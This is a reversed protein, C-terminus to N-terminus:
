FNFGLDKAIRRRLAEFHAYPTTDGSGPAAPRLFDISAITGDVSSVSGTGGQTGIIQGEAISDGAEFNAPQALHGYLVDVQEGTAPDTSEIVIFNGYGSGNPNLQVGIEKVIGPLVAPFKKDEFFVDIGPQNTDFTVQGRAQDQFRSIPIGETTQQLSYRVPAQSVRGELIALGRETRPNSRNVNFLAKTAPPANELITQWSNDKLEITDVGLAPAVHNVWDLPSMQMLDAHTRVEIPVNGTAEMEQIYQRYQPQNLYPVIIKPDRQDPTLVSYKQIGRRNFIASQQARERAENIEDAIVFRGDVVTNPQSVAVEIQQLISSTALDKAVQPTKGESILRSFEQNRKRTWYEAYNLVSDNTRGDVSTRIGPVQQLRAKIQRDLAVTDPANKFEDLTAAQPLWRALLKEPLGLSLVYEQTLNGSVRLETLIKNMEDTAKSWRSEAKFKEFAPTTAGAGLQSLVEEVADTEQQTIVGDAAYQEMLLAAETQVGLKYNQDAIQYDQLQQRQLIRIHDKLSNAETVFQDQFEPRGEFGELPMKLFSEIDEITGNSKLFEVTALRSRRSRLNTINQNLGVVGQRDFLNKISRQTEDALEQERETSRQQQFQSLIGRAQNAVSPNYHAALAESTYNKGSYNSVLQFDKAAWDKYADILQQGSLDPNEQLLRNKTELWRISHTAAQNKLVYVNNAYERSGRNQYITYLAEKVDESANGELFNQVWDLNAFQAKSLGDDLKYIQQMRDATIGAQQVVLNAADIRDKQLKQNISAGLEAASKSFAALDNFTKNQVRARKENEDLTAKVNREEAEIFQRRNETELDFNQQRNLEEQSQAFQQARLYLERNRM